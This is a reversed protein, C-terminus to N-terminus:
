PLQRQTGHAGAIVYKGGELVTSLRHRRGPFLGTRRGFLQRYQKGTHGDRQVRMVTQVAVRIAPLLVAPVPAVLAPDFQAAAGQRYPALAPSEFRRRPFRTQGPELFLDAVLVQEQEGVM